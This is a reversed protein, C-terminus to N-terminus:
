MWALRSQSHLNSLQILVSHGEFVLGPSKGSNSDTREVLLVSCESTSVFRMMAEASEQTNMANEMAGSPAVGEFLMAPCIVGLYTQLKNLVEMSDSTAGRLLNDESMSAATSLSSLHFIIRLENLNIKSKLDHVQENAVSWNYTCHRIPNSEVCLTLFKNGKMWSRTCTTM